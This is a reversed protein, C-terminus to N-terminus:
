INRVYNDLLVYCNRICPPATPKPVTSCARLDRTGNGILDIPNKNVLDLSYCCYTSPTDGPPYFRGIRLASLRAEKM